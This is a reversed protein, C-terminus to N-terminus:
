KTKRNEFEKNEKTWEAEKHKKYGFDHLIKDITKQKLQGSIYRQKLQTAYGPTCYGVYWKLKGTIEQFAEKQTM